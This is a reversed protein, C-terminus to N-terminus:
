HARGPAAEPIHSMAELGLLEDLRDLAAAKQEVTLDALLRWCADVADRVERAERDSDDGSPTM